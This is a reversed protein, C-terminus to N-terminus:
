SGPRDPEPRDPELTDAKPPSGPEPTGPEPTGPEPPTGGFHKDFLEQLADDAERKFDAFHRLLMRGEATLRSGGGEPGGTRREFLPVGLREEIARTIRWAKSYSMGMDKAAQNLSGVRAVRSLLEFSGPGFVQVGGEHLWVRHAPRVIRVFAPEDPPGPPVTRRPLNHSRSGGHARHRSPDREASM